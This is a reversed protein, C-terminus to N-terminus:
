RGSHKNTFVEVDMADLLKNRYKPTKRIRRLGQAEIQRIRERSLNIDPLQGIEKLSMPEQGDLGFRLSLVRSEVAPLGELVEAVVTKREQQAAYEFPDEVNTDCVKEELTTDDEDSVPDDFSVVTSMALIAQEVKDMPLDTLEVLEELNATRGNAIYFDSQAKKIKNANLRTQYPIDPRNESKYIGRTIEQRIWFMAYTSFRHGLSVDFKNVARVLGLNGCSILEEFERGKGMYKKACYVVLRINAEALRNAAREGISGGLKIAEGLEREQQASLLPIKHFENSFLNFCSMRDSDCLADLLKDSTIESKEEEYEKSLVDLEARTPQADMMIEQNEYNTADTKLM